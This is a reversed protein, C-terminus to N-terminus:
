RIEEIASAASGLRIAVGRNRCEASLFEILAGYGGIIRAQTHARWGDMRRSAGLTSAREPDAADYGEVMREISHRLAITSTSRRFETAPIRRRDSGGDTDQLARQLEAQHPDQVDRRSFKGDEMTWRTGQIPLLRFGRRACCATRSRLRAMSSNPEARRGAYGFDGAPLPYIRGGCRDRAELLTVRRGARALERAAMLGAAGAGIVVIHHATPQSM